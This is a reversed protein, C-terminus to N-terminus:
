LVPIEILSLLDRGEQSIKHIMMHPDNETRIFKKGFEYAEQLHGTQDIKPQGNTDGKPRGSVMVVLLSFVFGMVSYVAFLGTGVVFM